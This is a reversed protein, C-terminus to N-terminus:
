YGEEEMKEEMCPTNRGLRSKKPEKSAVGREQRNEEKEGLQLIAKM